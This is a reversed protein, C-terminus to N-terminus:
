FAARATRSILSFGELALYGQVGCCAKASYCERYAQTQGLEIQKVTESGVGKQCVKSYENDAIDFGFNTPFRKVLDILNEHTM